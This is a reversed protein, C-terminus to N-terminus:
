KNLDALEYGTLQAVQKRWNEIIEEEDLKYSIPTGMKINVVPRKFINWSYSELGSLGVPVIDAKVMKAIVVFGKNVEEIKKNKRIGGQPFICLNFNAKFVDKCTKITSVELKERNVSFGGLRSINTAVWKGFNGKVEYLEKKAMYALSRVTVMNMLFPDCYSIHNAAFIYPKNELNKNRECRFRYFLGFIPIYLIYLAYIQYLRTLFNFDKAYKRAHNIKKM